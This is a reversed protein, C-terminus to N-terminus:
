LLFDDLTVTTHNAIGQLLITDTGITILVNAGADTIVVDAFSNFATLDILDQGGVPNADFGAITDNGFGPAFVLLDNGAGGNMLDDGSDGSLTDDGAGGILTDNGAGGFLLDLDAGGNLSDAGDLGSISDNGAAGNLTNNGSNGTMTNALGNGNGGINGAAEVLILNEVNANLTDTVSAHVTDIGGGAAEVATDSASDFYYTDDGAGGNMQDNGAGGDLIDAQDGGFIQNNLANGTGTFSGVGTFFLREVNEPLSYTNLTTFIDDQTGGGALEIVVDGIDDVIYDDNGSGGAMTDAGTGGDLTDNGGGGDLSDNGADGLLTDTGGNAGGILTDSGEGGNVLDSGLGGDIFDEGGNGSLTDNGGLGQAYDAGESGNFSNAAASGLFNAGVIETPASAVTEANGQDDTFSVVVQLQNNIQGATPTFTAATAGAIAVWPLLPDARRYWQYAFVATTTGNPDEIGGPDATLQFGQTPTTDSIVPGGIPAQNNLFIEVGDAFRIKEMNYLTDIGDNFLDPDTHTVRVGGGALGFQIDYETSNGRYVAVDLSGIGDAAVIERMIQLQGPNIAGSFVEAVLTRMSNHSAIEAGTGDANERVSIRVNLWKDGDIVDNGGRGTIVDDGAGGLIIDGADFDGDANLVGNGLLSTLGDIMGMHEALLKSGNPNNGAVAIEAATTESGDLRDDFASGSLGEVNGYQDLASLPPPLPFEDFANLTLDAWVGTILTGPVVIQPNDKYTAWDFGSMGELKNIGASGVMIDDGGEGIFEDTSGDGLFVDHGVIMDGAFIEDFNDGPAGDFTGEEIWDNGENGLIRETTRSGLIFDDGTGAFVESVGDSGAIIFDKGAGALILNAGQGGNIADNGDGGKINDDGGLDTIIDDGAGGNIIDNGAGGEVRDNGGDAHFTDDGISGILTDNGETGGLVVHDTGTYRLYNNDPGPTANNDRDVLPNLITGGVPDANGLGANYQLAQNVELILGPTSFVDSPLHIADTNRMIMSAFSNNEMEGFLHLGDLRQLYYFRDSNQLNEMQVEFVFNFTSGLMGGFPLNKEALGGIWLDVHELGGLDGAYIGNGNLFDDADAPIGLGGVSQGTIITLAADRKGELTTQGTILAHTGYAAIFNVISAPNKLGDAFDIWDDYPRLESNNNTVQYFERRAANLSPVGTDRGRALNITALDLPLGLLNNRLAGTVFEDIENGVQRTMGRIISGAAQEATGGNLFATPNLFGEILSIHDANFGADFRDVTETLMSHGFRYVVHAFEAVIAPNITTDYGQPVLFVDINPQIKRAFEEFVLHQYQMETGFKAAQFLREGDWQLANIQAPDVPVAEVDVRLWENLFALDGEALVVSKTHEVLRNHEAHFVMHVATLGINENGRGDGTIFHADLLENDYEVSGNGPNALGITIDGDDIKGFPVAEHAIDDLFAHGTRVALHEVTPVVGPPVAPVITVLQLLAAPTGSALHTGAEPNGPDNFLVVQPFGDAGPIFNGYPDTALLPLNGVHYDTLDIGLMERAQEKIQGWTPLGGAPPPGDLAKGTAVPGGETMVYERLFVQHSPHSTYTQNQDVFPTTTNIPRVDDATGMVGDEGAGVTARTLVMFNTNSNPDYLPDDPQLPIFVTGSQGKGVLDLGHDFFQGFLTFWSNFPASLGEDPAVNGIVLSEGSMELGEATVVAQLTELNGFNPDAEDKFAAVAAAINSIALGKQAGDIGAIDLAKEVAAPNGPSMDVILNSITRIASDVVISGPNNSPAYSTPMAPSGGPGDPDFTEADRYVPDLLEPFPQDAAGWNTRGPILNNFSGDVTRLGWSINSAPIIGNVGFLPRAGSVGAVYDAHEESVKIQALIFDLDSRIYTVM